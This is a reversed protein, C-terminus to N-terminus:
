EDGNKQLAVSSLSGRAGFRVYDDHIDAVMVSRVILDGVDVAEVLDVDAKLRREWDDRREVHRQIMPTRRMALAHVAGVPGMCLTDTVCEAVGDGLTVEILDATAMIHARRKEAERVLEAEAATVKSQEREREAICRACHATNHAKLEAIEHQADTLRDDLNALRLKIDNKKNSVDVVRDELSAVRYPLNALPERGDELAIVRDTLDAVLLGISPKRNKKTV